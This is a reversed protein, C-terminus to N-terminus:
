QIKSVLEAFIWGKQELGPLWIQYWEDKEYLLWFEQNQRAKLVIASETSPAERINVRRKIVKVRAIQNAPITGVDSGQEEAAYIKTRGVWGSIRLRPIWIRIWGNENDLWKVTEGRTLPGFYPSTEEPQLFVYCSDVAVALTRFLHSPIQSPPPPAKEAPPRTVQKNGSDEQKVGACGLSLMAALVLTVLRPSSAGQLM